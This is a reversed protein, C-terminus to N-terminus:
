RSLLDLTEQYMSNYFEHCEQLIRRGLEREADLVETLLQCRNKSEERHLLLHDTFHLAQVREKCYKCAMPRLLCESDLHQDMPLTTCKQCRPCVQLAEEPTNDGPSQCEKHADRDVEAHLAGCGGVCPIRPTHDCAQACHRELHQHDAAIYDCYPCALRTTSDQRIIFYDTRFPVMTLLSQPDVSTDCYLCRLFQKRETFPKDLEFLRMCCSRCYRIMTHCHIGDSLYCPFGTIEVPVRCSELCLPCEM